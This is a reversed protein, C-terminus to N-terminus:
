ANRPGKGLRCANRKGLDALAGATAQRLKCLNARLRGVCRRVGVGVGRSERADVDSAADMRASAEGSWIAIGEGEGGGGEGGGYVGMPQM